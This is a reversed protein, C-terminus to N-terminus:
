KAWGYQERSLHVLSFVLQSRLCNRGFHLSKSSKSSFSSCFYTARMLLLGLSLSLKRVGLSTNLLLDLLQM